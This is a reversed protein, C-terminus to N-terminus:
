GVLAGWAESGRRERAAARRRVEIGVGALLATTPVRHSDTALFPSSLSGPRLKWLRPTRGIREQARRHEGGVLFSASCLHCARPVRCTFWAIVATMRM